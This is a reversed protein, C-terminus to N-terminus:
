IRALIGGRDSGTGTLLCKRLKIIENLSTTAQFRRFHLTNADTPETLHIMQKKVDPFYELVKKNLSRMPKTPCKADIFMVVNRGKELSRRIGEVMRTEKETPTCRGDIVIETQIMHQIINQFAPWDTYENYCVVDAPSRLTGALSMSSGLTFHSTIHNCLILHPEPPIEVGPLSHDVFSLFSQSQIRQAWEYFSTCQRMEWRLRCSAVARYSVTRIPVM